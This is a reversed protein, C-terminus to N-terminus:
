IDKLKYLRVALGISMLTACGLVVIMLVFTGIDSLGTVWRGINDFLTTFFSLDFNVVGGLAKLIFKGAPFILLLCFQVILGVGVGKALGFKIIFPLYFVLFLLLIMVMGIMGEISLILKLVPDKKQAIFQSVHSVLAILSFSFLIMLSSSVYRGGVIKWKPIPLSAMLADTQFAEDIVLFLYSACMCLIIVMPIYFGLVLGGFEDLMTVIAMLTLFSIVLGMVAIFVGGIIFDKKILDFM